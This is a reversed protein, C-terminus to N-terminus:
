KEIHVPLSKYDVSEIEDSFTLDITGDKIIIATPLGAGPDDYVKSVPKINPKGCVDFEPESTFLSYFYVKDSFGSVSLYVSFGEKVAEDSTIKYNVNSVLCEESKDSCGIIFFTLLSTLFLISKNKM